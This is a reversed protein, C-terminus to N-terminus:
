RRWGILKGAAAVVRDQTVDSCVTHADFTRGGADDLLVACAEGAARGDEGFAAAPQDSVLRRDRSTPDAAAVPQGPQLGFHQAM